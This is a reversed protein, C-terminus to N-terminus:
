NSCAPTDKRNECFLQLTLPDRVAAENIVGFLEPYDVAAEIFTERSDCAMAVDDMATDYADSAEQSGLGYESDSQAVSLAAAALADHCEEGDADSADVEACGAVCLVWIAAVIHIRM